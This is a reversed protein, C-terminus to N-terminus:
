VEIKLVKSAALGSILSFILFVAVWHLEFGLLKFSREPYELQIQRIKSNTPLFTESPYLFSWWWEKFATNTIRAPKAGIQIRQNILQEDGVRIQLSRELDSSNQQKNPQIRWFIQNSSSVRVPPSINIEAGAVLSVQKLDFDPELQLSLVGSEKGEFGRLGYRLNLEAMIALCPITLVLLPPIAYLFYLGANGLMKLQAKLSLPLDHRFLIAELLAAHIRRKVKKIAKQNSVRGYIILLLVGSLLSVILLGWIPAFFRMPELLVALLWAVGQGFQHILFSIETM